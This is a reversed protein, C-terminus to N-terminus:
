CTGFLTTKVGNVDNSGGVYSDNVNVSYSVLGNNGGNIKFVYCADSPICASESITSGNAVSSGQKVTQESQYDSLSWDIATGSSSTVYALDFTTECITPVASPSETPPNTEENCSGWTKTEMYDFAGGSAVEIGNEKVTYGGEGWYCCIGDGYSDYIQFTYMSAPVSASASYLTSGNSYPGGSLVEANGNCNDVLSWTTEGPYWDTQIDVTLEKGCSNNPVFTCVGGSCIDDTCSSGDNCDTNSSCSEESVEVSARPPNVSIDIGTVRIIVDRNTGGFNVIKYEDGSSLKAVLTSAAYGTGQQRMQITVQNGGEVTGSNIGSRRNYGVYYDDAGGVVKLVVTNSGAALYDSIGVLDGTWSTTLPSATAHKDSYWGLQWNKANNFCMVPGEDASYSYGMMGSQDAYAATGEGSHALGLNHGLEHMQASPSNCWNDNYVSLYWNIYAYALGSSVPPTCIMVYDYQSELDGLATTAAAIVANEVQSMTSSALNQSVQVTYVGNSHDATPLFKLQDYSCGIYGTKLNFVDGFTGFINDTLEDESSSTAGDLAQVRLVLVNKDGTSSLHRGRNKNANNNRRGFSPNGKIFLKGNKITVDGHLTTVGSEFRKGKEGPIKENKKFKKESFPVIKGRKGNNDVQDLECFWEFEDNDKANGGLDTVRLLLTCPANMKKGNGNGNGGGNGNNNKLYRLNSSKGVEDTSSALGLLLSTLIANKIIM